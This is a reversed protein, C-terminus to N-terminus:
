DGSSAIREADQLIADRIAPLNEFSRYYSIVRVPVSNAIRTAGDLAALSRAGRLTEPMYMAALVQLAAHAPPVATIALSCDAEPSPHLLYVAGLPFAGDAVSGWSDHVLIKRKEIWSLVPVFASPEQGFAEVVDDWLKIQPLYSRASVATATAELVLMDDAMLPYGARGFTACLTSKGMGSPASMAVAHGNSVFGSAHLVVKGALQMAMGMVPGTLVHNADQVPCSDELQYRIDRGSQDVWFRGIGRILFQVGESSEFTRFRVTGETLDGAERILEGLPPFYHARGVIADCVRAWPRDPLLGPSDESSIPATLPASSTLM